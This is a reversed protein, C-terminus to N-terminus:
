ISRLYDGHDVAQRAATKFEAILGEVTKRAQARVKPYVSMENRSPGRPLLGLGDLVPVHLQEQVHPLADPFAPFHARRVPEKQWIKLRNQVAPAIGGATMEAWFPSDTRGGAYHLNIFHAYDDVQGAVTENYRDRAARQNGGTLEAASSQSLLLLQVLTGHISTAELPELFSQSLGLSVCNGIWAREQRGPDISILGRPEIAHGLSAEIEARAADASLHIDSFVYGCGMREQTPIRWMWGASLARAETFPALPGEHEVWFPMAKNLPLIDAYSHWSAGMRGIIARRFGTCDVIFDVPLDAAGDLRLDTIDGTEPHRVIDHVEAKVHDIGAAKRALFRGLRAQDFHYAHHLPSVPVMGKDGSSAFPAKKSRMLYTFLHADQVPKGSGIRATHLWPGRADPPAPVLFHPDDIPGYYSQGPVAWGNHLIGFKFTAGTEKLFEAEDIKLDLLIQRLLSTSGEGVGVTPINPSEIVSIRPLPTASKQFAKRLVLAALWGATGGGVIAIHGQKENM